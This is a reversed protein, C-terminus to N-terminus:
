ISVVIDESNATYIVGGDKLRFEPSNNKFIIENKKLFIFLCILLILISFIIFNQSYNHIKNNTKLEEITKGNNIKFKEFKTSNLDNNNIKITKLDHIPLVYSDKFTKLRNEYEIENLTIKCSNIKILLTGHIEKNVQCNSSLNTKPINKVIIYNENIQNIINHFEDTILNCESFENNIIRTFCKDNTINILIKREYYKINGIEIFKKNKVFYTENNKNLINEYKVVISENEKNPIPELFYENYIINNLKPFKIVFLVNTDNYYAQLYCMEYIQEFSEIVVGQLTLKNRIFLIEDRNLINKSIIGLKAMQIIQFIDDLHTKLIDIDFSIQYLFQLFALDGKMKDGLKVLHNKVVNQQSNIHNTINEFRNIMQQNIHIQENHGDILQRNNAKLQQLSNNIEIADDHDMNGTIFKIGSGLVNILGRKYRFHPQIIKFSNELILFKHNLTELVMHPNKDKSVLKINNKINEINEEIDKLNIIHIFKHHETIIRAENTKLTMIGPNNTLDEIEM